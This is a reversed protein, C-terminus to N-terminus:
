LDGPPWPQTTPIPPYPHTLKSTIHSQNNPIKRACAQFFCHLVRPTSLLSALFCPSRTTGPFPSLYLYRPPERVRRAQALVGRQGLLRSYWIGINGRPAAGTGKAHQTCYPVPLWGLLTTSFMPRRQPYVVLQACM